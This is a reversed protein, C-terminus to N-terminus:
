SQNSFLAKYSDNIIIVSYLGFTFMVVVCSHWLSSDSVQGGLPTHSQETAVLVLSQLCWTGAWVYRAPRCSASSSLAAQSLLSLTLTPTSWTPSARNSTQCAAEFDWRTDGSEWCVMRCGSLTLIFSKKRRDDNPHPPRPPPYFPAYLNIYMMSVLADSSCTEIATSRTWDTKIHKPFGM